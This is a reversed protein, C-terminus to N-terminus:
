SLMTMNIQSGILLCCAASCARAAVGGAVEDAETCDGHNREGGRCGRTKM